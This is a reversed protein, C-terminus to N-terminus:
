SMFARSGSTLKSTVGKGVGKAQGLGEWGGAATLSYTGAKPAQSGQGTIEELTPKMPNQATPHGPCRAGPGDATAKKPPATGKGGTDRFAGEWFFGPYLTSKVSPLGNKPNCIFM